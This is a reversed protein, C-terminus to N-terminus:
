FLIQTYQFYKFNVLTKQINNLETKSALLTILKNKAFYPILLYIVINGIITPLNFLKLNNKWYIIFGEYFIFTQKMKTNSSCLLLIDTLKQFNCNYRNLILYRTIEFGGAFIWLLKEFILINVTRRLEQEMKKFCNGCKHFYFENEDDGM